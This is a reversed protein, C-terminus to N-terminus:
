TIVRVKPLIKAEKLQLYQTLNARTPENLDLAIAEDASCWRFGQWEDNLKVKGTAQVEYVLFVLYQDELGVGRVLKQKHIDSFFLRRLHTVKLSSEERVERIVASDIDEGPDVGGGVIGWQNPYVGHDNAMQCLLYQDKDNVILAGTILRFKM